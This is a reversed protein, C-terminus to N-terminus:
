KSADSVNVLIWGGFFDGVEEGEVDEFRGDDFVGFVAFDASGVEEVVGGLDDKLM